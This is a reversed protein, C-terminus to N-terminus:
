FVKEDMNSINATSLFGNRLDEIHQLRNTDYIERIIAVVEGGYNGFIEPKLIELIDAAHKRWTRSSLKLIKAKMGHM